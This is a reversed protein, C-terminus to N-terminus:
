SAAAPTFNEVTRLLAIYNEDPVYDLVSTNCGAIYRQKASGTRLMQEAREVVQEPTANKMFVVDMNGCLVIDDGFEDVLHELDNAQYECGHIAAFGIDRILPIVGDLKGDSHFAVPIDMDNLLEVNPRTVQETLERMTQPNIMTGTKYACDGDYLVFDPQLEAVATEICKRNRREVWAMAERVFDPRDYIELAFNELSMSTAVIHFCWPIVVWCALGADAIERRKDRLPDALTDWDPEPKEALQAPDRLAGGGYWVGTEEIREVETRFDSELRMYGLHAAAHGLDNAMAIYSGGYRRELMESKGFWPEWYPPEAVKGGRLLTMLRESREQM